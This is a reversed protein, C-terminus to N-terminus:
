ITRCRVCANGSLPHTREYANDDTTGRTIMQALHHYLSECRLAHKALAEQTDRFEEHTGLSISLWRADQGQRKAKQSYEKAKDIAGLPQAPVPRPTVPQQPVPPSGGSHMSPTDTLAPTPLGLAFAPAADNSAMLGLLSAAVETSAQGKAIVELTDSTLKTSRMTTSDFVMFFDEERDHPFHPDPFCRNSARLEAMLREAKNEGYRDVIQKKKMSTTNNNHRESTEIKRAKACM